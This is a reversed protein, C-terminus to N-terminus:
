ETLTYTYDWKLYYKIKGTSTICPAPKKPDLLNKYNKKVEELRKVSPESLKLKSKLELAEMLNDLEQKM